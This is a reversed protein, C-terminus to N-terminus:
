FSTRILDLLQQLFAADDDSQELVHDAREYVPTRAYLRERIIDPLQAEDLSALLPRSEREAKLRRFLIEPSTKLYIVVGEKQMWALNDFFCPTGGGTAIVSPELGKMRHLYQKELARFDSEGADSFIQLISKGEQTEIWEDLDIFPHSLARAVVRGWHTKGSGMFGILFVHKSM